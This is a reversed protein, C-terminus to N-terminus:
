KKKDEIFSIIERLNMVSDLRKQQEIEAFRIRISLPVSDSYLSSLNGIAFGDYILNVGRRKCESTFAKSPTVNGELILNKLNGHNLLSRLNDGNYSKVIVTEVKSSPLWEIFLYDIHSHKIIVCTIDYTAFIDRYSIDKKSLIELVYSKMMPPKVQSTIKIYELKLYNNVRRRCFDKFFKLAMDMGEFSISLHSNEFYEKAIFYEFFSKHSFKLLGTADRNLLSRGTLQFSDIEFSNDNLFSKLDDSSIYFGNRSKRNEYMNVAVKQSFTHLLIKQQPQQDPNFLAVEREIWKKILLEYIQTITDIKVNSETFLEIYSLLLPRIMVASCKNVVEKARKKKSYKWKFLRNIYRSIEDHSFPSVYHKNYVRFGKEKGYNILCSQTLESKEDAFFQTRCTIVVCRFDAIAKELIKIFNSFHKTAEQNEDLADLIIISNQPNSIEAIKVLVNDDSLSLLYIDYPLNKENYRLVYQRLLNVAFTTKGMGSGGLVCYLNNNTNSKVFVNKIYFEVLNESPDASLTDHPDIYDSPAKTQFRTTIYLRRSRKSLYEAYHPLLKTEIYQKRWSMNGFYPKVFFRYCLYGITGIICILIALDLWFTLTQPDVSIGHLALRESLKESDIDFLEFIM